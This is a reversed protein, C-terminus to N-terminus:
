HPAAGCPPVGHFQIQIDQTGLLPQGEPEPQQILLRAEPLVAHAAELFVAEVLLVAPKQGRFLNNGKSIQIPPQQRQLRIHREGDGLVGLKLLPAAPPKVVRLVDIAGALLAMGKLLDALHPQLTHAPHVVGNGGLRHGQRSLAQSQRAPVEHQLGAMHAKHRSQQVGHARRLGGPGPQEATDPVPIKM